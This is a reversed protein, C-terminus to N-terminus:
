RGIPVIVMMDLEALKDLLWTLHNHFGEFRKKSLWPFCFVKKNYCYGIAAMAKFVENGVESLPRNFREKDIMFLERVQDAEISLGNSKIGSCVMDYVTTDTDFLPYINDMYCSIHSLEELSLENNNVSCSFLTFSEPKHAYMSILYSVAWIGSDIEGELCNVGRVLNCTNEPNLIDLAQYFKSECLVFGDARINLGFSDFM